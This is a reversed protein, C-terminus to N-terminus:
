MKLKGYVVWGLFFIIVAKIWYPVLEKKGNPEGM